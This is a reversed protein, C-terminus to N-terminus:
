RLPVVVATRFFWGDPGDDNREVVHQYTVIVSARAALRFAATMGGSWGDMANHDPQGDTTTEGGHRYLVDASLWAAGGLNRTLHSEVSFLPAKDVRAAGYPRTNDEYFTLTPLIEFATLSPDLYSRGFAFTTPLGLQCAFRNAGLNVPKAASYAGTPFYVRALLGTSLRPRFSAYAEPPLAPSGFLGLVGGIQADGLGSSTEELTAGPQRVTSHVKGIPLIVFPNLQRGGLSLTQAYRLVVINTDIESGAVVDGSEPTENSHKVVAFATFTKAGLPALQYVRPGDDQAQAPVAFMAAALSVGCLVALKTIRPASPPSHSRRTATELLLGGAREGRQRDGSVLLRWGVSATAGRGPEVGADAEFEVQRRPSRTASGKSTTM